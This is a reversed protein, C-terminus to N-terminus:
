HTWPSTNFQDIKWEGNELVLTEFGTVDDPVPTGGVNWAAGYHFATMLTIYRLEGPPIQRAPLEQQTLYFNYPLISRIKITKLDHKYFSSYDEFSYRQQQSSSLLQYSEEYLGHDLLTYYETLIVLGKFYEPDLQFSSSGEQVTVSLPTGAPETFTTAAEPEPTITPQQVIRTVEITQPVLRTVEVTQHASPTEEAMPSIQGQCAALVLAFLVGTAILFQRNTM